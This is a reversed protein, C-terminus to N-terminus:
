SSFGQIPVCSVDCLALVRSIQGAEARSFGHGSVFSSNTVLRLGGRFAAKKQADSTHDGTRNKEPTRSIGSRAPAMTPLSYHDTKQWRWAWQVAGYTATRCYSAPSSTKM